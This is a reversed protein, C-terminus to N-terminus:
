RRPDVKTSILAPSGSVSLPYALPTGFILEGDLAAAGSDGAGGHINDGILQSLVVNAQHFSAVRAEATQRGGKQETNRTRHPYYVRDWGVASVFAFIVAHGAVALAFGVVGGAIAAGEM